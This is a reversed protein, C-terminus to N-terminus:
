KGDSDNHESQCNNGSNAYDIVYQTNLGEKKIHSSFYVSGSYHLHNVECYFSTDPFQFSSYDAILLSDGLSRLLDKYGDDSIYHDYNYLPPNVLICEVGHRKCTNILKKIGQFQYKHTPLIEEKSYSLKGRQRLMEEYKKIGGATDTQLRHGEQARYVGLLQPNEILNEMGNTLLFILFNPNSRLNLKFLESDLLFNRGFYMIHPLIRSRFGQDLLYKFAPVGAVLLVTDIQDNINLTRDLVPDTEIYYKGFRAINKWPSLITDNFACVAISNGVIITHCDDPVRLSDKGYTNINLWFAGCSFLICLGFSIIVVIIVTKAFRLFDLMVISRYNILRYLKKM